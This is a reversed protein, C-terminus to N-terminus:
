KQEFCWGLACIYVPIQLPFCPGIFNHVVVPHATEMSSFISIFRSLFILIDPVAIILNWAPHIVESPTSVNETPTSRRAATSSPALASM